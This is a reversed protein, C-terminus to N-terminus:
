RRLARELAARMDAASFEQEGLRSRWRVVGHTDVLYVASPWADYAQEVHRDLGDVVAPLRLALTRLCLTANHRKDDVVRVPCEQM